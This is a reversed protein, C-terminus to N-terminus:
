PRQERWEVMPLPQLSSSPCMTWPRQLLVTSFLCTLVFMSTSSWCFQHLEGDELDIGVKKGIQSLYPYPAMTQALLLTGQQGSAQISALGAMM